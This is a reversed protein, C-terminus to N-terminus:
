KVSDSVTKFVPYILFVYYYYLKEEIKRQSFILLSM